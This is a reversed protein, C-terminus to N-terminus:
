RGVAVRLACYRTSTTQIHRADSKRGTASPQDQLSLHGPRYHTGSPTQPMDTAPSPFSVSSDPPEGGAADRRARWRTGGVAAADTCTDGSGSGKMGTRGDIGAMGRWRRGSPGVATAVAAM